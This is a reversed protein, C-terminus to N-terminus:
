LSIGTAGMQILHRIRENAQIPSGLSGLQRITWLRGRYMNAHIGRVYPYQGPDGLDMEYNLDAVDEPGYATKIDFGSLNRSPAVGVYNSGTLQSNEKLSEISM